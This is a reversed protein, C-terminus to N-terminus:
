YLYFRLIDIKCISTSILACQLYTHNALISYYFHYLNNYAAWLVLYMQMFTYIVQKYFSKLGAPPSAITSTFVVIDMLIM